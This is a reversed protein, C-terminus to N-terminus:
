RFCHPVDQTRAAHHRLHVAQLAVGESTTGATSRRMRSALVVSCWGRAQCSSMEVSTTAQHLWLPRVACPSDERDPAQHHQAMCQHVRLTRQLVDQRRFARFVDSHVGFAYPEVSTDFGNGDANLRAPRVVHAHAAGRGKRM